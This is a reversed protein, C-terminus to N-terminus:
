MACGDRSQLIKRRKNAPWLGGFIAFMGLAKASIIVFYTGRAAYMYHLLGYKKKKHKIMFILIKGCMIHYTCHRVTYATTHVHM